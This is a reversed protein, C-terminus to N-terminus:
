PRDAKSWLYWDKDPLTREWFKVWAMAARLRVGNARWALIWAILLLVVDLAMAFPLLAIKISPTRMRIPATM